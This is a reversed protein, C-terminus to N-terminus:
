GGEFCRRSMVRSSQSILLYFDGFVCVAKVVVGWVEVFWLLLDVKSGFLKSMGEFTIILQWFDNQHKKWQSIEFFSWLNAFLIGEWLIVSMLWQSIGCTVSWCKPFYATKKIQPNLRQFIVSKTLIEQNRFIGTNGCQFVSCWKSCAVSVQIINYRPFWPPHYELYDLNITIVGLSCWECSGCLHMRTRCMDTCSM